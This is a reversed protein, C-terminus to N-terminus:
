IHSLNSWFKMYKKKKLSELILRYVIQIHQFITPLLVTLHECDCINSCNSIDPFTLAFIFLPIRGQCFLYGNHHNSLTPENWAENITPATEKYGSYMRASGRQREAKRVYEVLDFRVKYVTYFATAPISQQNPKIFVHCLLGPQVFTYCWTTTKMLSCPKKEWAHISPKNLSLTITSVFTDDEWWLTFTDGLSFCLLRGRKIVLLSPLSASKM